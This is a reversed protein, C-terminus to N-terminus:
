GIEGPEGRPVAGCKGSRGQNEVHFQKM